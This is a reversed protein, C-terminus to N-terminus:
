RPPMRWAHPLRACYADYFRGELGRAFDQDYSLVRAAHEQSSEARVDASAAILDGNRAYFELLEENMVEELVARATEEDISRRACFYTPLLIPGEALRSHVRSTGDARLAYVSPVLAIDAQGTRARHFAEIPMATVSSRQLLSRAEEEGYRQWVAKVVTRAAANDIGGFATAFRRTADPLALGECSASGYCTIPIAVLPLLRPDREMARVAPTDKRPMWSACAHCAGLSSFLRADDFMDLDASVVVDPLRADPRALYPSLRHECGMGFFVAHLDIGRRALREQARRVHRQEHGHLICIHNWYLTVTRAAGM